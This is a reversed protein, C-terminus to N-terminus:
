LFDGQFSFLEKLQLSHNFNPFVTSPDVNKSYQLFVVSPVVLDMHQFHFFSYEANTNM